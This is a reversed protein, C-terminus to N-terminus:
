KDYVDICGGIVLVIEVASAAGGTGAGSKKGADKFYQDLEFRQMGELEKDLFVLYVDSENNVRSSTFALVKGDASWRPNGDSDPHRTVNVAPASGNYHVPAAPFGVKQRFAEQALLQPSGVGPTPYLVEQSMKKM